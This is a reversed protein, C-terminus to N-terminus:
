AARRQSREPLTAMATVYGATAFLLAGAGAIAILKYRHAYLQARVNGLCITVAHDQLIKGINEGQGFPKPLGRTLIDKGIAEYDIEASSASDSLAERVGVETRGLVPYTESRLIPKRENNWGDGQMVIDVPVWRRANTDYWENYVHTYQRPPRTKRWAIVKFRNPIGAATLLGAYACALDDCDRYPFPTAKTLTYVPATVHEIHDPDDAYPFNKVMFQWLAYATARDSGQRHRAAIDQFYGDAAAARATGAATVQRHEKVISRLRDNEADRRALNRMIQLTRRVGADGSPLKERVLVASGGDLLTVPTRSAVMGRPLAGNTRPSAIMSRLSTSM